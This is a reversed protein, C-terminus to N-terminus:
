RYGDAPSSAVRAVIDVYSFTAEITQGAGM